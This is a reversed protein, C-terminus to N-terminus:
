SNGYTPPVGTTPEVPLGRSSQKRAPARDAPLVAGCLGWTCAGRPVLPHCSYGSGARDRGWVWIDPGAAIARPSGPVTPRWNNNGLFFSEHPTFLGLPRLFLM